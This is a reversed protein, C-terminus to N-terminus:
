VDLTASSTEDKTSQTVHPQYSSSLWPLSYGCARGEDKDKSGSFVFLCVVTIGFICLSIHIYTSPSLSSICVRCSAEREGGEEAVERRGKGDSIRQM